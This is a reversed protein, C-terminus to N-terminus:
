LVDIRQVYDYPDGKVLKLVFGFRDVQTSRYFDGSPFDKQRAPDFFKAGSTKKMAEIRSDLEEKKMPCGELLSKIYEACLVDEDTDEAGSLGMAVLSVEEAGSRRIYEAIASANVLSGTLIEDAGSANAIGQTGASTTHMVERGIVDAGEIQTPSNGFDFGPLIIGGREGVLIANPHTKKYELPLESSAVPMIKAAGAAALYAEVSFARFVDIIVATGRAEKAGEILHLIRVNM